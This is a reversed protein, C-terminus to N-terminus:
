GTRINTWLHIVRLSHVESSFFNLFDASFELYFFRNLFLPTIQILYINKFYNQVKHLLEKEAHKSVFVHNCLCNCRKEATYVSAQPYQFFSQPSDLLRLCHLHM